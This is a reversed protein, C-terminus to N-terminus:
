PSFIMRKQVVYSIVPLIPILLIAALNESVGFGAIVTIGYWNLWWLFSALLVYAGASRRTFHAVRFVGKGYLYYGLSMNVLQSFMTALGVPLLLLMGQLFLNTIFVNTSGYLLFRRKRGMGSLMAAANKLISRASRLINSDNEDAACVPAPSRMIVLGIGKATV